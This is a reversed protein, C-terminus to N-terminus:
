SNKIGYLYFSSGPVWNPGNLPTIEISTINSTNDWGIAANSIVAAYAANSINNETASFSSGVKNALSSAYNTIYIEASGFANGTANSGNAYGTRLSTGGGGASNLVTSLTNGIISIFSYNTASSGNYKLMINDINSAQNTRTSCRLVLDTYTAPISSFTVTAASSSLVQSSIFTYTNAM